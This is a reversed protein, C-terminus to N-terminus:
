TKERWVKIVMYGEMLYVKKNPIQIQRSVLDAISNMDVFIYAENEGGEVHVKLGMARM